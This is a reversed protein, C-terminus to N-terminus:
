MYFLVNKCCKVGVAYDRSTSPELVNKCINQKVHLWPRLRWYCCTTTTHRWFMRGAASVPLGVTQRVVLFHLRTSSAPRSVDLPRLRQTCRAPLDATRSVGACQSKERPIVDSSKRAAVGVVSGIWEVETRHVDRLSSLGAPLHVLRKGISEFAM